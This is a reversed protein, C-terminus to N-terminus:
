APAGAGQPIYKRLRRAATPQSIGLAKAVAISTGHERYAALFIEREVEELRERLTGTGPAAGAAARAAGGARELMAAPLMATTVVDSKATVVLRQILNELQRINGDWPQKELVNFVAPELSIHTSYVQNYISLFYGALPAIDEPRERLPPIKIPIVNLRYYLDERFKKAAIAETLDRNTAAILRFDVAIPKLGGVRTISKDQIVNLLKVQMDPSLEGIEDLFLTGGEALEIKGPKGKNGANTFAGKEYGFLESEVLNEPITACNITVFPGEQRGSGQHLTKAILSKGVGTEGTLLVNAGTDAVQMVLEMVDHMQESHAVIEHQQLEQSRMKSFEHRYQSMMETLRTYKDYISYVDAIDISNFSIVYEIEGDDGFIPVGTTMSFEGRKNQQMTTIKRKERLVLATVSPTFVGERELDYVSRGTVEEKTVAFHDEYSDSVRIIVGDADTLTLDNENDMIQFMMDM